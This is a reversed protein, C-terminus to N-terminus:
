ADSSELLKQVVRWASEFTNDFRVVSSGGEIMPKWCNTELDIQRRRGTDESINGWMTTTLLTRRPLSGAGGCLDRFFAVNVLPSETIRKDTIRHMYIVGNM